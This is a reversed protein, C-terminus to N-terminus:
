RAASDNRAGGGGGGAAVAAAPARAAAPGGGAAGGRPTWGRLESLKRSARDRAEEAVALRSRLEANERRLAEVTAATGAESEHLSALALQVAAASREVDGALPAVDELSDVTAM